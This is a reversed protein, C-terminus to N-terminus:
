REVTHLTMTMNTMCHILTASFPINQTLTYIYCLVFYISPFCPTTVSNYIQIYFQFAESCMKRWHIGNKNNRVENCEFPPFSYLHLQIHLSPTIRLTSNQSTLGSQGSSLLKMLEEQSLQLFESGGDKIIDVFNEMVYNHAVKYLDICGQM